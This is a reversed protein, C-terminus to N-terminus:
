VSATITTSPLSNVRFSRVPSYTEGRVQADWGMAGRAGAGWSLVGSPVAPTVSPTSGVTM